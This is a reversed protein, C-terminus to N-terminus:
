SFLHTGHIAGFIFTILGFIVGAWAFKLHKVAPFISLLISLTGLILILMGYTSKFDVMQCLDFYEQSQLFDLGRESIAIDIEQQVIAVAKVYIFHLHLGLTVSIVSVLVGIIGLIKM